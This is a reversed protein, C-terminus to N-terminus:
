ECADCWKRWAATPEDCGFCPATAWRARIAEAMGMLGFAVAAGCAFGDDFGDAFERDLRAVLQKTTIPPPIV